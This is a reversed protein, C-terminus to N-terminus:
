LFYFWPIAVVVEEAMSALAMAALVMAVVVEEAISAMAAVVVM